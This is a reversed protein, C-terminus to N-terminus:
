RRLRTGPTAYVMACFRIRATLQGKFPNLPPSRCVIWDPPEGHIDSSRIALLVSYLSTWWWVTHSKMHRAALATLAHPVIHRVRQDSRRRSLIASGMIQATIPPVALCGLVSLMQGKHSRQREVCACQRFKRNGMRARFQCWHMRPSIHCCLRVPCSPQHSGVGDESLQQMHLVSLVSLM